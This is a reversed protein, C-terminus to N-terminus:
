EQHKPDSARRDGNRREDRSGDGRARTIARRDSGLRRDAKRRDEGTNEESSRGVEDSMKREKMEWLECESSTLFTGGAENGVAWRIQAPFQYDRDVRLTIQEGIRLLDSTELRFGGSSVDLVVADSERGDSDVVVAPRRLDVRPPRNTLPRIRQM